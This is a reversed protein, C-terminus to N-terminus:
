SPYNAHAKIERIQNTHRHTHATVLLLWQYGDITEHKGKTIAKLPLSDVVHGRLDPTAELKARLKACSEEIRGLSEAPAVGGTPRAFEPAPFRDGTRDPVKCLIIEDIEASERDTGAVPASAYREAMRKDVLDQVIGIHEVIEAITWCDGTPRFNWQGETLGATTEMLGARAEEMYSRAKELEQASIGRSTAAFSSM